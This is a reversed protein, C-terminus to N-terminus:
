RSAGTTASSRGDKSEGKKVPPFRPFVGLLDATGEIGAVRDIEAGLKKAAPTITKEAQRQLEAHLSKSPEPMKEALAQLRNMEEVQLKLKPKAAAATRRDRVTSLIRTMENMGDAMAQQIEAHTLPTKATAKANEHPPLPKGSPSPPFIHPSAPPTGMKKACGALWLGLFLGVGVVLCNKQTM